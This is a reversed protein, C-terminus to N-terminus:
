QIQKYFGRRTYYIYILSTTARTLGNLYLPPYHVSTLRTNSYPHIAIVSTAEMGFFLEMSTVLFGSPNRLLARLEELDSTAGTYALVQKNTTARIVEVARLVVDEGWDDLLVVVFPHLNVELLAEKLGTSIVKDRNSVSIHVPKCGLVTHQVTSDKYLKLLFTRFYSGYITEPTNINEYVQTSM